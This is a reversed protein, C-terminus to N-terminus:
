DIFKEFNKGNYKFIEFIRLKDNVKKAKFEKEVDKVSKGIMLILEEGLEEKVNLENYLEAAVELSKKDINYTIILKNRSIMTCMKQMESLWDRGDNEHEILMEYKWLNRLKKNKLINEWVMGDISRFETQYTFVKEEFEKKKEKKNWKSLGGYEESYVEHIARYIYSQEVNKLMKRTTETKSRYWHKKDLLNDEQSGQYIDRSVLENIIKAVKFSTFELM